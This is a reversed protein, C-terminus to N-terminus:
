SAEHNGVNDVPSRWFDPQGSLIAFIYTPNAGRQFSNLLASGESGFHSCVRQQTLAEIMDHCFHHTAGLRDHCSVIARLVSIITSDKNWTNWKLSSPNDHVEEAVKFDHRTWVPKPLAM